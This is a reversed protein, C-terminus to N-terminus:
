GEDDEFIFDKEGAVVIDGEQVGKAKLLDNVGNNKLFRRFFELSETNDFDLMAIFREVKRSKVRYLNAELKEIEVTDKEYLEAEAKEREFERPRDKLINYVKNIVNELGINDRASVFNIKIKKKKFDKIIEKKEKETLLDAKNIAVVQPRKLLKKDYAALEKNITNYADIAKGQTPEVLHIYVRTREIHRLFDFGLGKGKAAGEILGPIDAAIFSKEDDYKVIGLVPALTTFPYDAIKPHAKSIKSLLTSKGANALGIIGVDALFKLEFILEREDAPEGKECFRPAQRTATKFRSNGKGGRGGKAVMFREGHEILDKIVKGTKPDKIVTGRPVKIVTDIGGRGQCNNGSGNKGSEAKFTKASHLDVLTTLHNDAEVYVNGGRGGDGGDPGGKPVFKEKWFSSHGDGGRGSIVKIRTYDIFV